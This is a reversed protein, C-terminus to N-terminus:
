TNLKEREELDEGNINLYDIKGWRLFSVTLGLTATGNYIEMLFILEV